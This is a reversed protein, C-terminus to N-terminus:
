MAYIEFMLYLIYIFLLKKEKMEFDTHQSDNYFLKLLFAIFVKGLLNLCLLLLFIKFAKTLIITQNLHIFM